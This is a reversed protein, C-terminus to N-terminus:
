YRRGGRFSKHQNYGGGGGGFNQRPPRAEAVTIARGRIAKGNLEAIAKKAEENNEMEVFAFGRSRNTHADKVVSISSVTGVQGFLEQLDSDTADFSLSGIYLKM